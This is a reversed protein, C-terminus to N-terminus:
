VLFLLKVPTSAQQKSFELPVQRKERMMLPLLNRESLLVHM